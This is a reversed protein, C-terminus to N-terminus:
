RTMDSLRFPVRSFVFVSTNKKLDISPPELQIPGVRTFLSSESAGAFRSQPRMPWGAHGGVVRSLAVPFSWHHGHISM